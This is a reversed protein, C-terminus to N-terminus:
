ASGRGAHDHDPHVGHMDAQEIGNEKMTSVRQHTFTVLSVYTPM